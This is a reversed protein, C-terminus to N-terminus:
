SLDHALSCPKEARSAAICAREIKNPWAAQLLSHRPTPVGVFHAMLDKLRFAEPNIKDNQGERGIMKRSRFTCVSVGDQPSSTFKVACRPIGCTKQLYQIYRRLVWAKDSSETDVRQFNPCSNSDLVGQRSNPAVTSAFSVTRHNQLPSSHYLPLGWFSLRIIDPDTSRGPPIIVCPHQMCPAFTFLM